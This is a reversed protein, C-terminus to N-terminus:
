LVEVMIRRAMGYGIAVETNGSRAVVPGRMFHGSVKKIKVGMRVGLAELRRQLGMGGEIRVVKGEEGQKMSALDVIAVRGGPIINM